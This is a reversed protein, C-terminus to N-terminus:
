TGASRWFGRRKQRAETRLEEVGEAMTALDRQLTTTANRIETDLGDGTHRLQSTMASLWESRAAQAADSAEKLASLLEQSTSELTQQVLKRTATTQEDFARRFARLDKQQSADQHTLDTLGQSVTLLSDSLTQMRGELLLISREISDLKSAMQRERVLVAVSSSRLAESDLARRAILEYLAHWADLASHDSARYSFCAVGALGLSALLDDISTSEDSDDVDLQVVVPVDRGSAGRLALDEFLRQVLSQNETRAEQRARLLLIVGDAQEVLEQAARRQQPACLMASVNLSVELGVLAGADRPTFSFVQVRDGGQSLSFPETKHGDLAAHLVSMAHASTTPHAGVYVISLEVAGRAADVRTM